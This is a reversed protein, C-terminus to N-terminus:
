LMNPEMGHADDVVALATPKTPSDLAIHIQNAGAQSANDALEYLAHAASKYGADRMGRVFAPGAVIEFDYGDSVLNSIYKRQSDLDSLAVKTMADNRREPLREQAVAQSRWTTHCTM